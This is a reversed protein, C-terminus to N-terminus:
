ENEYCNTNLRKLAQNRQRATILLKWTIFLSLLIFSISISIIMEESYKLRALKLVLRKTKYRFELRVKRCTADHECAFPEFEDVTQSNPLELALFPSDVFQKDMINKLWNRKISNIVTRVAVLRAALSAIALKNRSRDFMRESYLSSTMYEPHDRFITPPHYATRKEISHIENTFIQREVMMVKQPKTCFEDLPRIFLKEFLEICWITEEDTANILQECPEEYDLFLIVTENIPNGQINPCMILFIATLLLAPNPPRPRSPLVPVAVTENEDNGDSRIPESIEMTTEPTEDKRFKKFYIYLVILSIIILFLILDTVSLNNSKNDETKRHDTHIESIGEKV